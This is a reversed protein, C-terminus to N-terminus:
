RIILVGLLYISTYLIMGLSIWLVIMLILTDWDRVKGSFLM